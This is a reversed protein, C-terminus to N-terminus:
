KDGALNIESGCHRCKSADKPVGGKCEPCKRAYGAILVFIFGLLPSLFFALLFWLVPQRGYKGALMAVGLTLLLWTILFALM